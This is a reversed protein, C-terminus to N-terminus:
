NIISNFSCFTLHKFTPRHAILRALFDFLLKKKNYIQGEYLMLGHLRVIVLLFIPDLM